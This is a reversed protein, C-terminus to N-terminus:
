RKSEVLCVKVDGYKEKDLKINHPGFKQELWEETFDSWLYFEIPLITAQNVFEEALKNEAEIYHQMHLDDVYWQYNPYSIDWGGAQKWWDFCEQNGRKVLLINSNIINEHLWDLNYAFQHCKIMKTKSNREEFARDCMERFSKIDNGYFSELRHFEHGLEM